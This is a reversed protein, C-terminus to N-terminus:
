FSLFIDSEASMCIQFHSNKLEEPMITSSSESDTHCFSTHRLLTCVLIVSHIHVRFVTELAILGGTPLSQYLIVDGCESTFTFIYCLSCVPYCIVRESTFTYDKNQFIYDENKFFKLIESCSSPIKKFTLCHGELYSRRRSTTQMNKM